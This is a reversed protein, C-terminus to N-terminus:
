VSVALIGDVPVVDDFAAAVEGVDAIDLEAVAASADDTCGVVVAVVTSAAAVAAVAAAVALLAGSL